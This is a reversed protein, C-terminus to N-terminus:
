RVFDSTSINSKIQNEIDFVSKSLDTNKMLALFDATFGYKIEKGPTTTLPRITKIKLTKDLNITLSITDAKNIM